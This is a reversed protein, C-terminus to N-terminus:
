PPPFSGSVGREQDWLSGACPGQQMSLVPPGAQLAGRQLPLGEWRLGHASSTQGSIPLFSSALNHGAANSSPAPGDRAGLGTPGKNLGPHPPVQPLLAWSGGQLSWEPDASSHCAPEGWSLGDQHGSLSNTPWRGGPEQHPHSATMRLRNTGVSAWFDGRGRLM